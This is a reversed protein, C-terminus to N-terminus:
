AIDAQTLPRLGNTACYLKGGEAEIARLALLRQAPDPSLCDIQAVVIGTVYGDRYRLSDLLEELNILFTDQLESKRLNRIFVHHEREWEQLSVLQQVLSADIQLGGPRQELLRAIAVDTSTFTLFGEVLLKGKSHVDPM